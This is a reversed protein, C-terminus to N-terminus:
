EEGWHASLPSTADYEVHTLWTGARVLPPGQGYTGLALKTGDATTCFRIHPRL